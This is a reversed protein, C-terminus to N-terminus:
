GENKKDGGHYMVPVCFECLNVGDVIEVGVAAYNSDVIYFGYDFEPNTHKFFEGYEIEEKCKICTFTKVNEEVVEGEEFACMKKGELGVGVIACAVFSTL